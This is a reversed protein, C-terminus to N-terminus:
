WWIWLSQRKYVDKTATKRHRIQPIRKVWDDAPGKSLLLVETTEMFVLSIEVISIHILSLNKSKSVKALPTRRYSMAYYDEVHCIGCPM